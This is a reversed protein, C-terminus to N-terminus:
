MNSNHFTFPPIDLGFQCEKEQIFLFLHLSVHSANCCTICVEVQGQLEKIYEVAIDLMESTNTQQVNLCFTIFMGRMMNSCNYLVAPNSEQLAPSLRMTILWPFGHIYIAPAIVPVRNVKDM